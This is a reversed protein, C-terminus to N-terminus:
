HSMHVEHIVTIICQSLCLMEEPTDKAFFYM